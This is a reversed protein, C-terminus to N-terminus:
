FGLNPFSSYVSVECIGAFYFSFSYPTPYSGGTLATNLDYPESTIAIIPGVDSQYTYKDLFQLLVQTNKRTILAPCQLLSYPERKHDNNDISGINMM